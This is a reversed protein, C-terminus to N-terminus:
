LCVFLCVFLFFSAEDHDNPQTFLIPSSPPPPRRDAVERLHRIGQTIPGPPADGTADMATAGRRVGDDGEDGEDDSAKVWHSTRLLEVLTEGTSAAM